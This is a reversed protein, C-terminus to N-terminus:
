EALSSNARDPDNRWAFYSVVVSIAAASLAGALLVQYGVDHDVVAGAGAAALGTLVFLWGATRNAAIWAHESSLTWPTRVGLFFNSRSKATFNGIVILMLSAAYLVLGPAPMATEGSAAQLIISTHAVLLIGLAGLWGSILLGRSMRVHGPRPDIKPIAYFVISLIVALIPMGILVHNRPSYGNVNGSIDWHRAIMTDAPIAMWGYASVGIMATIVLISVFLGLTKM